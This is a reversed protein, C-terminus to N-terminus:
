LNYRNRRTKKPRGSMHPPQAAVRDREHVAVEGVVDLLHRHDRSELAALREHNQSVGGGGGGDGRCVGDLTANAGRVITAEGVLHTRIHM